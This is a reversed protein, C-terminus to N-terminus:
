LSDLLNLYNTDKKLEEQQKETMKNIMLLYIIYHANNVRLYNKNVNKLDTITADKQKGDTFWLYCLLVVMAIFLIKKM